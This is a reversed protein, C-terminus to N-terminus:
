LHRRTHLATIQRGVLYFVLLGVCILTIFFLGVIPPSAEGTHQTSFILGDLAFYGDAFLAVQVSLLVLAINRVVLGGSIKQRHTPGFCGCDLETRGRALNIGIAVIFSALLLGCVIAAARTALGVVLLVSIVAEIWPVLTAFLRALRKPLVNYALVVQVFRQQDGLKSVAAALFVAALVWRALTVTYSHQPWTLVDMM